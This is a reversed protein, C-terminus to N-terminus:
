EFKQMLFISYKKIRKKASMKKYKQKMYSATFNIGTTSTNEDSKRLGNGNV